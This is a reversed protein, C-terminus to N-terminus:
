PQAQACTLEDHPFFPQFAHTGPCYTEYSSVVETVYSPKQYSATANPAPTYAPASYVPAEPTTYAPPAYAPPAPAEYKPAEYSDKPPPAYSATAVAAGALVVAIFQMKIASITTPQHNLIAPPPHLNILEENARQHTTFSHFRYFSRLPQNDTSRSLQSSPLWLVASAALLCAKIFPCCRGTERRPHEENPPQGIVSCDCEQSGSGVTTAQELRGLKVSRCPVRQSRDALALGQRLEACACAVRVAFWRASHFPCYSIYYTGGASHSRRVRRRRPHHRPRPSESEIRSLLAALRGCHQQEAM